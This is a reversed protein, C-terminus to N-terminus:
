LLCGTCLIRASSLAAGYCASSPGSQKPLCEALKYSASSVFCFPLRLCAQFSLCFNVFVIFLFGLKCGTKVDYCSEPYKGVSFCFCFVRHEGDSNQCM